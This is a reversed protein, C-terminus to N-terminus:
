ENLEGKNKFVIIVNKLPQYYDFYVRSIEWEGNAPLYCVEKDRVIIRTIPEGTPTVDGITHYHLDITDPLKNDKKEM